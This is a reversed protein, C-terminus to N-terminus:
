LTIVYLMNWVFANYLKEWIKMFFKKNKLDSRMVFKNLLNILIGFFFVGFIM